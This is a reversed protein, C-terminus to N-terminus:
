DADDDGGGRGFTMTIWFVEVTNGDLAVYMAYGDVLLGAGVFVRIDPSETPLTNGELDSALQDRVRPLDFVLFDTVSPTGDPGREDPLLLDLREFFQESFRVQRDPV